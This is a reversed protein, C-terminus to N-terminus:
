AHTPRGLSDLHRLLPTREILASISRFEGYVTAVLIVGLAIGQGTPPLAVVVWLGALAGILNSGTDGLLARERLDYLGIVLVPGVFLGMAALPELTWAGLTVGVGLLLFAKASRGPRLDLLNFLNTSLVLVAVALLYRGDSEYRGSLVFLALGLSGAAKLAGTSVAGGLVAAGHGRWGRPEADLVDDLLGLFAVGAAYLAILRLEPRFVEEDALRVVVMLPILSLVAAAVIVAGAPCPLRERRYNEQVLAGRALARLMPPAVLAAVAVSVVLPLAELARVAAV